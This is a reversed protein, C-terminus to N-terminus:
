FKNKFASEFLFKSLINKFYYWVVFTFTRLKFVIRLKNEYLYYLMIYYVFRTNINLDMYINYNKRIKNKMKLLWDKKFSYKEYWKNM